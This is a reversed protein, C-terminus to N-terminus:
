SISISIDIVSAIPFTINCDPSVRLLYYLNVYRSRMITDVIFQSNLHYEESCLLPVKADLVEKVKDKSIDLDVSFNDLVLGEAVCIELVANACTESIKGVARSAKNDQVGKMLLDETLVGYYSRPINLFTFGKSLLYQHTLNNAILSASYYM